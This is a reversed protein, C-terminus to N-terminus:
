QRFHGKAEFGGRCVGGGRREADSPKSVVASLDVLREALSRGISLMELFTESAEVREDGAVTMVAGTGRKLGGPAFCVLNAGPCVLLGLTDESLGLVSRVPQLAFPQLGRSPLDFAQRRQAELDRSAQFRANRRQVFRGIQQCGSRFRLIEWLAPKGNGVSADFLRSGVERSM